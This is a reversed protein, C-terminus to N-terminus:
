SYQGQRANECVDHGSFEPLQGTVTLALAQKTSADSDTSSLITWIKRLDLKTTIAVALRHKTHKFFLHIM